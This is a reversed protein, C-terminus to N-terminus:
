AREVCATPVCGGVWPCDHDMVRVLAGSLSSFHSRPPKHLESRDCFDQPQTMGQAAAAVRAAAHASSGRRDDPARRNAM